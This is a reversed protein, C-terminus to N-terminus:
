SDSAAAPVGAARALWAIRASSELSCTWKYALDLTAAAAYVGHGRVVCIRHRSLAAAVEAPSRATYQGPPIDLVPVVPFYYRGEFDAPVFDGGALTMAISHPGHSHLVAGADPCAAYVALHLPADLSAGPPPEHGPTCPLLDGPALTDGGCGSPTVWAIDGDRVSANGSHSDNLGYQRLWRYYRVLAQRLDDPRTL